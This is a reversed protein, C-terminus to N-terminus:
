PCIKRIDDASRGAKALELRCETANHLGLGASVAFVIIVFGIGCFVWKEFQTIM